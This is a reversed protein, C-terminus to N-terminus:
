VREEARPVSGIQNVFPESAVENALTIPPESGAKLESPVMSTPRNTSAELEVGMSVDVRPPDVGSVPVTSGAESIIPFEPLRIPPRLAAVPASPSDNLWCISLMLSLPALTTLQDTRYSFPGTFLLQPQEAASRERRLTERLYM